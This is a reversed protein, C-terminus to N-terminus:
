PGSNIGRVMNSYVSVDSFSLSGSESRTDRMVRRAQGIDGVAEPTETCGSMRVASVDFIM